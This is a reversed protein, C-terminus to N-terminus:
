TTWFFERCLSSDRTRAQNRHLRVLEVVWILFLSPRPQLLSMWIQACFVQSAHYSTHHPCRCQQDHKLDFGHECCMASLYSYVCAYGALGPFSTLFFCKKFLHLPHSCLFCFIVGCVSDVCVGCVGWGCVRALCVCVFSM